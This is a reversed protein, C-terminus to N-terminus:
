RRRGTRARPPHSHVTTSWNVTINAAQIALKETTPGMTALRSSPPAVSQPQIAPSTPFLQRNRRQVPNPVVVYLRDEDAEVVIEADLGGRVKPLDKLQGARPKTTRRATGAGVQVNHPQWIVCGYDAWFDLFKLIMQQFSQPISM